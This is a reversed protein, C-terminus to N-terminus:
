WPAWFWIAVDRGAFDSGAVHGGGLKPARFDLLHAGARAPGQQVPERSGQKRDSDTQACASLLLVVAMTVAVRKM